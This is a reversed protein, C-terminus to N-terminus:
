FHFYNDELLPPLNGTQYVTRWRNYWIYRDNPSIEWDTMNSIREMQEKAIRQMEEFDEDKDKDLRSVTELILRTQENLNTTRKEQVMKNFSTEFYETLEAKIKNKSVGQIIAENQLIGEIDEPREGATYPDVGLYDIMGMVENLTRETFAKIIEQSNGRAFLDIYYNIEEETNFFEFPSAEFSEYMKKGIELALKPIYQSIYEYQQAHTLRGNAVARNYQDITYEYAIFVDEYTPIDKRKPPVGVRGRRPLPLTVKTPRNFYSVKHLGNQETESQRAENQINEEEYYSTDEEYSTDEKYEKYLSDNHSSCGVVLVLVLLCSVFFRKKM